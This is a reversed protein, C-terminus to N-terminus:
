KVYIDFSMNNLYASNFFDNAGKNFTLLLQWCLLACIYCVKYTTLLFWYKFGECSM